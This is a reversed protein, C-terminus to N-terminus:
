SRSTLELLKLVTAWNRATGKTALKSDFYVNTLKTNSFGNPLHVYINGESVDFRDPPSRQADLKAIASAEPEDALFFVFVTKAAEAEKLYPNKEVIRALQESSRIIVPVQFGFQDAIQAEIKKPLKKLVSASANFIVNGSQIYTSVDRCGAALFMEALDKMPLRNKSALNIARLLAVYM